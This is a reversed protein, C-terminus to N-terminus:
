GEILITVDSRDYREMDRLLRRGEKSDTSLYAVQGEWYTIKLLGTGNMIAHAFASASFYENLPREFEDLIRVMEGNEVLWTVRAGSAKLDGAYLSRPDLYRVVDCPRYQYAALSLRYKLAFAIAEARETPNDGALSTALANARTTRAVLMVGECIAIITVLVTVAFFYSM